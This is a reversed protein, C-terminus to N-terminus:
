AALQYEDLGGRPPGRLQQPTYERAGASVRPQTETIPSAAVPTAARVSVIRPMLAHAIFRVLSALSELLADARHLAATTIIAAIAHALWMLPGHAGHAVMEPLASGALMDPTVTHGSHGQTPAIAGPTAAGFIFLTHFLFQSAGVAVSLRLLSAKKAVALCIPLAILLPVVLGLVGPVAGGGLVHSILAVFTAFVAATAGRLAQTGRGHEM